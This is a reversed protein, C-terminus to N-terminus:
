RPKTKAREKLDAKFQPNVKFGAKEALTLEQLAEDFRSTQM